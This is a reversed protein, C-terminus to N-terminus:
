FMNIKYSSTQVREGIEEWKGWGWGRTIVVRSKRETQSKWIGCKFSIMYYGGKEIQSIKSIVIGELDIWTTTFTLIKKKIMAYYHTQTHTYMCVSRKKEGNIWLCVCRSNGYRPLYRGLSPIAPDYLLKIKVNKSSSGYQKEYYSCWNKNGGISGSLTREEKCWWWCTNNITKKIIGQRLSTLHYIVTIKIKVERITLSILCSKM